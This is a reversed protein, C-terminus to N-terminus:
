FEGALPGIRPNSRKEVISALAANKKTDQRNAFDAFSDGFKRGALLAGPQLVPKINLETM